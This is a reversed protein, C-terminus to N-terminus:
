DATFGLARETGAVHVKIADLSRDANGDRVAEAILTHEALITELRGPDRAASEGIMRMQRDRLSGYVDHLIDNGATEVLIAHFARDADAFESLDGTMVSHRQRILEAAMRDFVANRVDASRRTVKGAAFQEVVLRAEMVARVEQPSVAIVLAGRQPYLRLLGQAELRLFAERVPTRSLGLADAVEGESILEGGPFSGTLIQNKVYDLARDRAALRSGRVARQTVLNEREM